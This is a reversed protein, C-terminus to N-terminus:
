PGGADVRAKLVAPVPGLKAEAGNLLELAETRKGRSVLLQALGLRAFPEAPDSMIAKRFLSEAGNVKGMQLAWGRVAEQNAEQPSPVLRLAEKTRGAALACGAVFAGHAPEFTRVQAVRSLGESVKGSECYLAAEYFRYRSDRNADTAEIRQLRKLQSALDIPPRPFRPDVGRTLPALSSGQELMKDWAEIARTPLDADAYIAALGAHALAEGKDADLASQYSGVADEPHGGKMQAMGLAVFVIARPEIKSANRLTEAAAEADGAALEALGLLYLAAGRQAHVRAIPKATAVAAKPDGSRRQTEALLLKADATQGETADEAPRDTEVVHRAHQAAAAAKGAVVLRWGLELRADVDKPELRVANQLRTIATSEDGLRAAVSAAVRESWSSPSGMRDRAAVAESAARFRGAALEAEIMETQAIRYGPDLALAKRLSEVAAKPDAERQVHGLVFWAHASDSHTSLQQEALQKADDTRGMSSLLTARAASGLLSGPLVKQVHDAWINAQAVGVGERDSRPLFVSNLALAALPEPHHPAAVLARRFRDAADRHEAFSDGRFLELGERFLDPAAGGAGTEKYRATIAAIDREVDTGPGAPKREGPWLLWVLLVLLVLGGTGGGVIAILPGRPDTTRPPATRPTNRPVVKAMSISPGDKDVYAPTASRRKSGGGLSDTLDQAGFGLSGMEDPKSPAPTPFSGPRRPASGPTSPAAPPALAAAAGPVTQGAIAAVDAARVLQDANCKPCNIYFDAEPVEELRIKLSRGCATCSQKVEINM